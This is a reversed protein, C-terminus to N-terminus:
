KIFFGLWQLFLMLFALIFILPILNVWWDCVKWVFENFWNDVVNGYLARQITWQFLELILFFLVVLTVLFFVISIKCLELYVMDWTIM